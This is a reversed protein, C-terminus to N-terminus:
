LLSADVWAARGLVGSLTPFTGRAKLWLLYQYIRFDYVSPAIAIVGRSSHNGAHQGTGLICGVRLILSISIQLRFVRFRFYRSVMSTSEQVTM